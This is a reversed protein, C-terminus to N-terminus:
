EGGLKYTKVELDSAYVLDVDMVIQHRSTHKEDYVQMM